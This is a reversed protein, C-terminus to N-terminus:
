HIFFNEIVEFANKTSAYFNKPSYNKGDTHQMMTGFNITLNTRKNVLDYILSPFLINSEVFRFIDEHNHNNKYLTAFNIFYDFKKNLLKKKLERYEKFFISNYTNPFKKRLNNLIKNKKNKARLIDLILYGEKLASKLFLNGIFGSSGTILIIKKKM